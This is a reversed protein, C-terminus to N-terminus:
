WLFLTRILAVAVPSQRALQYQEMMDLHFRQMEAYDYSPSPSTRTTQWPFLPVPDHAELEVAYPTRFPSGTTRWFCGLMAAAAVTLVFGLPLIIHRVSVRLEPGAKRLI